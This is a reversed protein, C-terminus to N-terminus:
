STTTGNSHQTQSALNEKYYMLYFDHNVTDFAASLDMILVATIQKYEIAWMTDKVLKLLYTKYSHFNRYASKYEPLLNHIDCHKALQNLTCKEITKSFFPLNSVHRYNTKVTGKSLAKILPWVETSTWKGCFEWTGLLLNVTKAIWPLCHKLVKKLFTTPITDLKCAKQHCELYPKASKKVLWHQFVRWIHNTM